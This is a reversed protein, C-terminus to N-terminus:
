PTYCYLLTILTLNPTLYTLSHHDSFTTSSYPTINSIYLSYLFAFHIHKICFQCQLHFTFHPLFITSSKFSFKINQSSTCLILFFPFMHFHLFFLTLSSLPYFFYQNFLQLKCFVLARYGQATSSSLAWVLIQLSEMFISLQVMWGDVFVLNTYM